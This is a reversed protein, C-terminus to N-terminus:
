ELFASSGSLPESETAAEDRAASPSLGSGDVPHTADSGALWFHLQGEQDGARPDGGPQQGPRRPRRDGGGRSPQGGGEVRRQGTGDGRGAVRDVYERVRRHGRQQGGGRVTVHEPQGVVGLGLRERRRERGREDVAVAPTSTSTSCADYSTGPARSSSRTVTMSRSRVSHGHSRSCVWRDSAFYRRSSVWSVSSAM